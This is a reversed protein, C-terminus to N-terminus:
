IDVLRQVKRVLPVEFVLEAFSETEDTAGDVEHKPRPLPHLFLTLNEGRRRPEAHFAEDRFRRRLAAM